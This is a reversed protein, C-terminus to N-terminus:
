LRQVCCCKAPYVTCDLCNSCYCDENDGACDRTPECFGGYASCTNGAVDSNTDSIIITPYLPKRLPSLADPKTYKIAIRIKLKNSCVGNPCNYILNPTNQNLIYNKVDNNWCDNSYKANLLVGTIENWLKTSIGNNNKLWEIPSSLSDYLFKNTEWLRFGTKIASTIEEITYSKRLDFEFYNYLVIKQNGDDITTYVNNFNFNTFFDTLALISDDESEAFANQSCIYLDFKCERLFDTDLRGLQIKLNSRISKSTSAPPNTSCIVAMDENGTNECWGNGSNGSWLSDLTRVNATYVGHVGNTISYTECDVGIAHWQSSINKQCIDEPSSIKDRCDIDCEIVVEKIPPTPKNMCIVGMDIGGEAGGFGHVEPCWGNGFNGTWFSDLTRINTTFPGHVGNKIDIDECNVGIAHWEGGINTQCAYEPSTIKDRCDGGCNILVEKIPPIPKNICIVAMDENVTDECWGGDPNGTWSTDLQRIIVDGGTHGVNKFNLDECDVGLAHWVVGGQNLYAQCISEPSSVKDRCDGACEIVIEKVQTGADTLSFPEETKIEGGPMSSDYFVKISSNQNGGVLKWSSELENDSTWWPKNQLYPEINTNFNCNSYRLENSWAQNSDPKNVYFTASISQPTPSVSVGKIPYKEPENKWDYDEFFAPNDLVIDWAHAQDPLEIIETYGFGTADTHITGVADSGDGKAQYGCKTWQVPPVFCYIPFKGVFVSYDKDPDGKIAVYIRYKPLSDEGEKYFPVLNLSDSQATESGESHVTYSLYFDNPREFDYYSISTNNFYCLEKLINNGMNIKIPESRCSKLINKFADVDFSATENFPIQSILCGHLEKYSKDAYHEYICSKLKKCIEYEDIMDDCLTCNENSFGPTNNTCGWCNKFRLDSCTSGINAATTTIDLMTVNDDKNWDCPQWDINRHANCANLDGNNVICNGDIDGILTPIRGCMGCKQCNFIDNKGDGNVDVDSCSSCEYCDAVEVRKQLFKTIDGVGVGRELTMGEYNLEYNEYEQTASLDKPESLDEAGPPPQTIQKFFDFGFAVSILSFAIVLIIIVIIVRSLFHEPFTLPM